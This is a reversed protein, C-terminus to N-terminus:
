RRRRFLDIMAAFVHDTAAPEYRPGVDRLFAHDADYLRAEFRAGAAELAAHIRARGAAPIHPDHRGWVLLLEGRIDGVRALTDAADGGCQDVHVGTPYCCVTAKVAPELAARLALHGGYCFGLAFVAGDDVYPARVLAALAAQRDEDVAATKARDMAALAAARDADFDFVTGVPHQRGWPEVSAVVFGHGALRRCVRRHAESNGFIDPFCLVLPHRGEGQPRSLACRVVGAPGDVDVLTDHVLM